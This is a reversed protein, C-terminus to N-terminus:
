HKNDKKFTSTNKDVNSIVAFKYIGNCSSNKCNIVKVQDLKKKYTMIYKNYIILKIENPIDM